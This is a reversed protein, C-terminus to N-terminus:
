NGKITIRHTNRTIVLLEQLFDRPVKSRRLADKGGPSSSDFNAGSDKLFKVITEHGSLIAREM